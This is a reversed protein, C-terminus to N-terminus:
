SAGGGGGGVTAGVLAAAWPGLRCGDAAWARAHALMKVALMTAAYHDCPVAKVAAEILPKATILCREDPM